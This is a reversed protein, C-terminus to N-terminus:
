EAHGLASIVIKGLVVDELTGVCAGLAEGGWKSVVENEKSFLPAGVTVDFVSAGM